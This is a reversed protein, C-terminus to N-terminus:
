LLKEKKLIKFLDKIDNLRLETPEKNNYNYVRILYPKNKLSPNHHIEIYDYELEIVRLLTTM